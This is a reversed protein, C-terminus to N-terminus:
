SIFFSKETEALLDAGSNKLFCFLLSGSQHILMLEVLGLIWGFFVSLVKEREDLMFEGLKM